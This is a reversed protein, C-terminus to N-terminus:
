FKVSVATTMTLDNNEKGEAPQSNYDDTVVFRLGLWEGLPAEVGAEANLLYNALDDLRPIYRGWFWIEAKNKLKIRLRSTVRGGLYHDTEGGVEENVLSPGIDASLRITPNKLLFYGIGVSTIVRYKVDAIDDYEPTFSGPVYWRESVIKEYEAIIRGNETSKDGKDEGYSQKANIIINHSTNTRDLSLDFNMSFKDTNGKKREMGLAVKRTWHSGPDEDSACVETVFVGLLLVVLLMMNIQIRQKKIM